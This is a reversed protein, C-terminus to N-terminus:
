SISQLEKEELFKDMCQSLIEESKAMTCLDFHKNDYVNSIREWPCGTSCVPLLNCECCEATDLGIGMALYRMMLRTNGKLQDDAINGICRKKDGFDNWCKYMDGEPGIIYSHLSTAGCGKTARQPMWNVPVGYADAMKDFFLYKDQNLISNCNWCGREEDEVRIYGPYIRLHNLHGSFREAFFKAIKGYDDITNKDINVRVVVDTDNLNLLLKEINNIIVDFSGCKNHKYRRTIDHHEKIGDLSIQISRLKYQKFYQIVDDTILSANTVISHGIWEKDQIAVLKESLKKIEDFALLPEGGYWTIKFKTCPQYNKVYQVLHDIVDDSMFCQRKHKEYCYPCAFNCDSTPAITMSLTNSSFSAIKNRLIESAVYDKDENEAVIFKQKELISVLDPHLINKTAEHLNAANKIQKISEFENAQLKVIAQNRTNFLIYLNNKLKLPIAYKSLIKM